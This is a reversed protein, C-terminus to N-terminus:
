EPIHKKSFARVRELPIAFGINEAGQRVAFVLGILQGEVDLLPGGSNGPNIPADTQIVKHLTVEENLEIDRNLASVIGVTVTGTYGLPNGIVVVSQGVELEDSDDFEIARFKGQDVIRVVALDQNPDAKVVEGNFTKDESDAFSIAVTKKDGVVHNNTVLYGRPDIIVGSGMVKKTNADRVAVSCPRGHRVCQITPTLHSLKKMSVPTTLVSKPVGGGGPEKKIPPSEPSRSKWAKEWTSLSDLVVEVPPTGFIQAPLEPNIGMAQTIPATLAIERVAPRYGMSMLRKQIEPQVFLKTILAAAERHEDTVWERQVVAGTIGDVVTGKAPYIGVWDPPAKRGFSRANLQVLHHEALFVMDCRAPVTLMENRLMDNIESPFWVVANSVAKYAAAVAPDDFDEPTLEKSKQLVGHAISLLAQGGTDSFNPNLLLM